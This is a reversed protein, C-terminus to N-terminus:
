DGIPSGGSISGGHQQTVIECSISLRLGTGEGNNQRYLLSEMM